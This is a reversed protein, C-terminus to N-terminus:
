SILDHVFIEAIVTGKFIEKDFERRKWFIEEKGEERVSFIWIQIYTMLAFFFSQFWDRSALWCLETGAACAGYWLTDLSFRWVERAQCGDVMYGSRDTRWVRVFTPSISEDFIAFTLHDHDKLRSLIVHFCREAVMLQGHVSGAVGSWALWQSDVGSFQLEASRPFSSCIVLQVGFCSRGSKGNSEFGKNIYTGALNQVKWWWMARNQWCELPLRRCAVVLITSISRDISSRARSQGKDSSSCHVIAGTFKETVQCTVLSLTQQTFYGLSM